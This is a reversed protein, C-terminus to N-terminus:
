HVINNAMNQLYIGQFKARVYAKHIIPVELKPLDLWEVESTRRYAGWGCLDDTAGLSASPLRPPGFAGLEHPFHRNIAM